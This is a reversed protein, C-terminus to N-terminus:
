IAKNDESAKKLDDLVTAADREADFAKRNKMITKETALTAQDVENRFTLQAKVNDGSGANQEADKMM